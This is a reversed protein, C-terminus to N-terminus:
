SPLVQPCVPGAVIEFGGALGAVDCAEQLEDVMQKRLVECISGALKRDEVIPLDQDAYRKFKVVIEYTGDGGIENEYEDYRDRNHHLSYEEETLLISPAYKGTPRFCDGMAPSYSIEGCVVKGRNNKLWKLQDDDWAMDEDVNFTVQVTEKSM